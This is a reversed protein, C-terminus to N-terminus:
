SACPSVTSTNLVTSFKQTMSWKRGNDALASKNLDAHTFSFRCRMLLSRKELAKARLATIKEAM